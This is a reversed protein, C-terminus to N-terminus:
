FDYNGNNLSVIGNTGTEWKSQPTQPNSWISTEGIPKPKATLMEGTICHQVSFKKLFIPTITKTKVVLILV